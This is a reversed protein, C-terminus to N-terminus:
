LPQFLPDEHAEGEESPPTTPAPQTPADGGRWKRLMVVCIVVLLLLMLPIARTSSTEKVTTVRRSQDDPASPAMYGHPCNIARYTYGSLESLRDDLSSM